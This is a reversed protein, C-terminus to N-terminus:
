RSTKHKYTYISYTLSMHSTHMHSVCIITHFNNLEMNNKNKLDFYYLLFYDHM